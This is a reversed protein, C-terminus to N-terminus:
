QPQKTEESARNEESSGSSELFRGIIVLLIAGTGLACAAIVLGTYLEPRKEAPVFRSPYLFAGIGILLFLLATWVHRSRARNGTVLGFVVKWFPVVVATGLIFAAFTRWTIQFTFGSHLAELSAAMFGFGIATGAVMIRRIDRENKTETSKLKM